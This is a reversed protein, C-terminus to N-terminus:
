DEEKKGVAFTQPLSCLLLEQICSKCSTSFFSHHRCCLFTKSRHDRHHHHHLTSYFPCLIPPFPTKEPSSMLLPRFTTGKRQKVREHKERLLTQKM